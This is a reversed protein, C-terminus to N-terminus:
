RSKKLVYKNILVFSLVLVAMYIFIPNILFDMTVLWGTRIVLIVAIVLVLTIIITNLKKASGKIKYILILGVLILILWWGISSIKETIRIAYTGQAAIFGIVPSLVLNIRKHEPNKKRLLVYFLLTFFIFPFIFDGLFRDMRRFSNTVSISFAKLVNM